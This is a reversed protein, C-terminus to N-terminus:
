TLDHEVAFRTAGARSSVDLKGYISRLHQSVTRPSIFLREAVEADTLSQAVLRLVELERPTLGGPAVATPGSAPIDIADLRMIARKADLPEMIGRAVGADARAAAADSRALRLEARAILTLAREFPAACADALMLARDLDDEAADLEGAARRLEGRMRLADILALPQEPESAAYVALEAHQSARTMDGASRCYRAWTIQNEARGLVSSSWELWRDNAELWALTAALDHRDLALEAALRQLLLSDLLVVSGPEAAPGQPLLRRVQDRVLEDRGQWYWLPAMANTLERRLIYNGDTEVEDAIATAEAWKGEIFLLGLRARRSSRDSPFAGAALNLSREAEAALNRREAILMPYYPLIVDRLESLQTFGIVAYHEILDYIQRARAFSRRAEAPGGLAASALGHGFWAHGTASIVLEGAPIGDTLSVFADAMEYARHLYGAVALFWPLGGRRHHVNAPIMIRASPEFDPLDALDRPPLADALWTVREWSEMAEDSPLEELEVIGAEMEVLGSGFDDSYCRLLGRSYRSDAALVRNGAQHAAREAAALNAIGDITESYRQLRGSRYLLRSRRAEMGPIDEILEAAKVFRDKAMLWAYARQAREGARVYWEWAQEDGAREYHFAVADPSTTTQSALTDAVRKHWIRRRPSVVAEYLAERTLAHVFRVRTGDPAADLLHADLAREVITLLQNEDLGLVQIWLALPIDHGIIAAVSLPERTEDGLRSVHGDILQRLLTPVVIRDLEGLEWSRGASRLLGEESLAHLLEVVFFPNGDAHRELYAVLRAENAESMPHRSRVYAQLDASGLPRLDLRRGGTERIFSPLQQYLPQARTLEDRRYTAILLIPLSALGAGLYRLFEISAPDAWHLDELIIMVPLISALATFFAKLDSFLAAQSEIEEIRGTAMGVPLEPMSGSPRYTAALDLWPGYPPTVTLDYCHGTLVCLPGSAAFLALDRVLSTKGIGAEGSVVVLCGRGARAGALDQRLIQQEVERGVLVPPAAAPNHPIAAAM